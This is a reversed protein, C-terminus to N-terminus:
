ASVPTSEPIHRHAGIEEFGHAVAFMTPEDYPRALIEMGVPLGATSLGAPVTVAPMWSQSGIVTNTPFNLTNWLGSDTDERTPPEVQCTPYVLASLRHSEMLNVLLKMFAERAYYARHYAPDTFPDDPGAALAELLDLKPHYRKSSVIDEVSSAPAGTLGALWADIDYKSKITYMSTRGIWGALDDVTVNILEAGASTLQTLAASMVENVPRANPDSEAGFASRLVGIRRDVLADPRLCELYSAPARAVSYAYTLEDVPDFGAMVTFLRAADEVSRTMPGITDQVSVLPNCGARSIVGPTSRVGVLNCFSAPLRVSGGCDTGLGATAFGAAVAAGTGSSSGGPDRLLDFPNKTTGTRSSYSFWSTAWDPLTTKGLVIAGATRLRAVVTADTAPRYDTFIESGFSTPMDATDLCDKVVIPIGHLPGTARGDALARDAAEAERLAAPNITVMANLAPGAADFASIRDLYAAVVKRTTIAGSLLASRITKIDALELPTGNILM